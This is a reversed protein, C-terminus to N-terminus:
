KVQWSSHTPVKPPSFLVKFTEPDKNGCSCGGDPLPAEATRQLVEHHRKCVECRVDVLKM